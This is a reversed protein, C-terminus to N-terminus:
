PAFCELEVVGSCGRELGLERLLEPPSERVSQDPM